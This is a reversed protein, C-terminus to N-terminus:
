QCRTGLKNRASILDLVDVSGDLNVDGRWSDNSRGGLRNRITILDLVNVVCDGNADGLMHYVAEVAADADVRFQIDTQRPQQAIGNIKWYAFNYPVSGRFVRLQASLAVDQPALFVQEYPTTGAHSGALYIGSYPSSGVSLRARFYVAVATRDADMMLSLLSQGQPQQQGDIVWRIFGYELGAVSAVPPASLEVTQQDDATLIHNTLKGAISIGIVPQSSVALAHKRITYVATATMSHPVTFQVSLEGLAQETGDIEWKLFDYRISGDSALPPAALRVSQNPESLVKSFDTVGPKDGAITVGKIPTSRVTLQLCADWLRATSDGGGTLVRTGDTSYAVSWIGSSHGIFSRVVNGTAADWLRASCDPWGSGTLAKTGDPSFAVFVYGTYGSFTRILSGTNADWLKATNDSSGTLVRAGDPSFAVSRLDATHGAFTRVCAGTAADWLKATKDISGTLAKTGDPSFAVSEVGLTHGNFTRIVSGTTISWLKAPETDGGTLVQTGDPSFAVSLVGSTNGSFTRILGGNNADWLKATKDMSGTLVRTSDPSYAVSKLYATHGSFTHILGGSEADWLKATNGDGGTLVKTGDPSFAVSYVRGPHGSFTLIPETVIDEAWLGSSVVVLWAVALAVGLAKM